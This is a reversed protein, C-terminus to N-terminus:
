RGFKMGMMQTVKSYLCYLFGTNIIETGPKRLKLSFTPLLEEETLSEAFNIICDQKLIENWYSFSSHLM